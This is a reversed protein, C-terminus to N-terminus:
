PLTFSSQELSAWVIIDRSKLPVLLHTSDVNEILPLCAFILLSFSRPELSKTTPRMSLSASYKLKYPGYTYGAITILLWVKLPWSSISATKLAIQAPKLSVGFNQMFYRVVLSILLSLKIKMVFVPWLCGHPLTKLSIKKIRHM